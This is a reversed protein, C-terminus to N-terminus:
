CTPVGPLQPDPHDIYINSVFGGQDRLKSWWNNTYGEATVTDGQKQCEVYVQTPGPLTTVIPSSLYADARVNVGSGWTTFNDDGGGGGCNDSTLYEEYYSGPYGM